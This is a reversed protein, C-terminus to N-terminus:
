CNSNSDTGGIGMATRCFTFKGSALLKTMADAVDQRNLHVQIRRGQSESAGACFHYIVNIHKSRMSFVPKELLKIASQSDACITITGIELGLKTYLTRLWLVEKVAYAAVM